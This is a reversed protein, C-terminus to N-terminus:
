MQNGNGNVWAYEAYERWGLWIGAEELLEARATQFPNSDCTQTSLFRRNVLEQGGKPLELKDPRKPEYIVLVECTQLRGRCDSLMNKVLIVGYWKGPRYQHM